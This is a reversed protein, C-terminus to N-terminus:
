ESAKNNHRTTELKIIEEPLSAVGPVARPV